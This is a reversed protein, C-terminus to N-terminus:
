VFWFLKGEWGEFMAREVLDLLFARSSGKISGCPCSLTMMSARVGEPLGMGPFARTASTNSLWPLIIGSGSRFMSALGCPSSSGRLRLMAHYVCYCILVSM